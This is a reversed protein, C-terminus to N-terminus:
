IPFWFRALSVILRLWPEVISIVIGQNELELSILINRSDRYFFFPVCISMPIGYIPMLSSGTWLSARQGKYNARFIGPPLYILKRLCNVSATTTEYLFNFSFDVWPRWLIRNSFCHTIPYLWKVYVAHGSWGHFVREFHPKFIFRNVKTQVFSYWIDSFGLLIEMMWLSSKSGRQLTWGFSFSWRWRLVCALQILINTKPHSPHIIPEGASSDLLRKRWM